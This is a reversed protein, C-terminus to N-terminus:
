SSCGKDYVGSVPNPQFGEAQEMEIHCLDVALQNQFINSGYLGNKVCMVSDDIDNIRGIADDHNTQLMPNMM